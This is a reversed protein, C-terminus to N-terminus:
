PRRKLHIFVPPTGTPHHLIGTGEVALASSPGGDLAMAADSDPILALLAEQLSYLDTEPAVIFYWEQSTTKVILSRDAKFGTDEPKAIGRKGGPEIIMPGSQLALRDDEVGEPLAIKGRPPQRLYRLDWNGEEDITWLGSYPSDTRAKSFTQGGEILLGLPSQQSDFFGGNILTGVEDVAQWVDDLEQGSALLLDAEVHEPRLSVGYLFVGDYNGQFAKFEARQYPFAMLPHLRYCAKTPTFPTEGTETINAYDDRNECLNSPGVPLSNHEAYCTLPIHYGLKAPCVM